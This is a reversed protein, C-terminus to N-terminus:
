IASKNEGKLLTRGDSPKWLLGRGKGGVQEVVVDSNGILVKVGTAIEITTAEEKAAAQLAHLQQRRQKRAQSAAM